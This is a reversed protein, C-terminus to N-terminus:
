RRLRSGAPTGRRGNADQEHRRRTAEIWTARSDVVEYLNWSGGPGYPAQFVEAHAVDAAAFVTAWILPAWILAFRRM